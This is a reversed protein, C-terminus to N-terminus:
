KSGEGLFENVGQGGVRAPIIFSFCVMFLEAKGKKRGAKWDSTGARAEAGLNQGNIMGMAHRPERHRETGQICVSCGVCKDAAGAGPPSCEPHLLCPLRQLAGSGLALPNRHYSQCPASPDALWIRKDELLVTTGLCQSTDGSLHCLTCFPVLSLLAGRLITYRMYGTLSGEMGSIRGPCSKVALWESTERERQRRERWM